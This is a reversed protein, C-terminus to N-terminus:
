NGEAILNADKPNAVWDRKSVKAWTEELKKWFDIGYRSGLAELIELISESTSVILTGRLLDACDQALDALIDLDSFEDGYHCPAIDDPFTLGNEGMNNLLFIAADALADAMQEKFYEDNDFGRIGQGRKLLVHSLEGVEELTGLQPVRVKFNRKSWASIESILQNLRETNM